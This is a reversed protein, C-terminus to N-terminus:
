TLNRFRSANWLYYSLTLVHKIVAKEEHSECFGSSDSLPKLDFGFRPPNASRVTGRPVKRTNCPENSAAMEIVESRRL